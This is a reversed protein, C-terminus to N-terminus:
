NIRAAVRASGTMAPSAAANPEADNECGAAEWLRGLDIVSGAGTKEMIHARHAEVTKISIDLEWAIVKNQKGEIVLRLVQRERDSLSALVHEAHRARQRRATRARQVMLCAHIKDLFTARGFPKALFDVAGTKMAQVATDVDARGTIVLVPCDTRRAELTGVLAIGDMDPLHVDAVVCGDIEDVVALLEEASGYTRYALGDALLMREMAARVEPEDDVIHITPAHGM